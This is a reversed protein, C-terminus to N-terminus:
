GGVDSVIMETVLVESSIEITVSMTSSAARAGGLKFRESHFHRVIFPGMANPSSGSVQCSWHKWPKDM